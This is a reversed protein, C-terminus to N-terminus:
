TIITPEEPKEQQQLERLEDARWPENLMRILHPTPIPFRVNGDHPIILHTDLYMKIGAEQCLECFYFDEGRIQNESYDTEAVVSKIQEYADPQNATVVAKIRRLKGDNSNKGVVGMPFFEHLSIPEEGGDHKWYQREPFFAKLRQLASVKIKSFGIAVKVVRILGDPREEKNNPDGHVHWHTNLHRKSYLGCVIDEDHSILRLLQDYTPELDKDWFILDTCDSKIATLALEDRAWQVTCGGLFAYVFKTDPIKAMLLAILTRMYEPPVEGKLPTAILIKRMTNGRIPGGCAM